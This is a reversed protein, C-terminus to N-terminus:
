TVPYVSSDIPVAHSRARSSAAVALANRGSAARSANSSCTCSAANVTVASTVASSIAARSGQSSTATSVRMGIRPRSLAPVSGSSVASTSASIARPKEVRFILTPKSASASRALIPRM